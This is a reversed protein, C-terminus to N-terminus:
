GAAPATSTNVTATPVAALHPLLASVFAYVGQGLESAYQEVTAELGAFIGGLEPNHAVFTQTDSSIAAQVKEVSPTQEAVVTALGIAADAASNIAITM